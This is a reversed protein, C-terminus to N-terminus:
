CNPRFERATKGCLKDSLRSEKTTVYEVKGVHLYLMGFLRCKNKEASGGAAPLFYKCQNCAKALLQQQKKTM